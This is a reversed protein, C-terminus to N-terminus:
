AVVLFLTLRLLPINLQFLFSNLGWEQSSMPQKLESFYASWYHGLEHIFISIYSIFIYWFIAM